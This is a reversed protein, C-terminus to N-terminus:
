SKAVKEFAAMANGVTSELAASLPTMPLRLSNACLGKKSAAYKVPIPNTEVFMAKCLPLLRMFKAQAEATKGEFFDRTIDGTEKPYVNSIVSIVGAGGISLVPVILNDDGSLLTMRGETAQIVQAMFGLDGTAEKIAPINGHKSLAVITDVTMGVASRGPINYLVVPVSSADAIKQFHATLGAQVPKNYYPNVSLVADAGASAAHRTLSIAEATSNSGTGAIIVTKSNKAKAWEIVKAIVEAHETHTLTPSEGTTGCPVLGEVGADIQIEVLKKLATWDVKEGDATFPTLLATYTGRLTLPM